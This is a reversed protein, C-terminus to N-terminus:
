MWGCEAAYAVETGYKRSKLGGGWSSGSGRELVIVAALMSGGKEVGVATRVFFVSQVWVINRGGM